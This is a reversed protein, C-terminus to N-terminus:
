NCDFLVYSSLLICSHFLIITGKTAETELISLVIDENHDVNIGLDSLVQDRFIRGVIEAKVKLENDLCDIVCLLNRGKDMKAHQDVKLIRTTMPDIDQNITNFIKTANRFELISNKRKLLSQLDDIHKKSEENTITGIYFGNANYQYPNFYRLYDKTPITQNFQLEKNCFYGANTNYDLDIEEILLKSRAIAIKQKGILQICIILIYNM